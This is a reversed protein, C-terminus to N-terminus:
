WPRKGALLLVPAAGHTARPRLLRRTLGTALRLLLLVVMVVLTAGTVELLRPSPSPAARPATDSSRATSASTAPGTRPSPANRPSIVWATATAASSSVLSTASRPFTARTEATTVPVVLVVEVLVLLLLSPATPSTTAPLLNTLGFSHPSVYFSISSIPRSFPLSPCVWAPQLQLLSPRWRWWRRGHAQAARHV